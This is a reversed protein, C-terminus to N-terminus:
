NYVWIIGRTISSITPAINIVIYSIRHIIIMLVYPTPSIIQVSM